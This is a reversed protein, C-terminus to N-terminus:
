KLICTYACGCFAQDVDCLSARYDVGSCGSRLSPCACSDPEQPMCVCNFLVLKEAYNGTVCTFLTGPDCDASGKPRTTEARCPTTISFGLMPRGVPVDICGQVNTSDCVWQSEAGPLIDVTAGGFATGASAFTGGVGGMEIGGLNLGGIASPTGAQASVGGTASSTSSGSTSNAAGGPAASSGGAGSTSDDAAVHTAVRGGCELLTLGAGCVVLSHFLRAM